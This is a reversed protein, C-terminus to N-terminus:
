YYYFAAYVQKLDMLVQPNFLERILLVKVLFSQVETGRCRQVKFLFADAM